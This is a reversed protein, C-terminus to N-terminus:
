FKLSAFDMSDPTPQVMDCDFSSNNGHEVSTVLVLVFTGMNEVHDVTLAQRRKQSNWQYSEKPEM